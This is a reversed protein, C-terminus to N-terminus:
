VRLLLPPVAQCPRQLGRRKKKEPVSPQVTEPPAPIPAAPTKADILEKLIKDVGDLEMLDALEPSILAAEDYFHRKQLLALADALMLLPRLLPLCGNFIGEKIAEVDLTRLEDLSLTSLYERLEKRVESPLAKLSKLANAHHLELDSELPLLYPLWAPYVFDGSYTSNFFDYLQKILPTQFYATIPSLVPAMKREMLAAIAGQPQPKKSFEQNYLTLNYCLRFFCSRTSLTEPPFIRKEALQLLDSVLALTTEVMAHIHHLDEIFLMQNQSSPAALCQAAYWDKYSLSGKIARQLDSGYKAKERLLEAIVPVFSHRFAELKKRTLPPTANFFDDLHNICPLKIGLLRNECGFRHIEKHFNWYRTLCAKGESSAEDMLKGSRCNGIGSLILSAPVHDQVLKDCLDRIPIISWEIQYNVKKQLARYRGKNEPKKPAAMLNKLRGLRDDLKEIFTRPFLHNMKTASTVVGLVRVGTESGRQYGFFLQYYFVAIEHRIKQFEGRFEAPIHDKLLGMREYLAFALLDLLTLQGSLPYHAFLEHLLQNEAVSLNVSAPM